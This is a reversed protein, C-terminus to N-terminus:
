AMPCPGWAPTSWSRGGSRIVFSGLNMLVRGEGDLQEPYEDRASEPVDPYFSKGLFLEGDSVATVEVNGVQLRYDSMAIEGSGADCPGTTERKSWGM